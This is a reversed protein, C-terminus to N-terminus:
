ESPSTDLISETFKECIVFGGMGVSADLIVLTYDYEQIAQLYSEPIDNIDAVTQPVPVRKDYVHLDFLENQTSFPTFGWDYIGTFSLKIKTKLPTLLVIVLEDASFHELTIIAADHYVSM